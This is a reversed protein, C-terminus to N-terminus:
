ALGEDRGPKKTQYSQKSPRALAYRRRGSTKVGLYIGRWSGGQLPPLFRNSRRM